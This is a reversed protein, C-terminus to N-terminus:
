IIQTESRHSEDGDAFKRICEKNNKKQLYQTSYSPLLLLRPSMLLPAVTRKCFKSHRLVSPFAIQSAALVAIAWAKDDPPHSLAGTRSAAGWADITLLYM